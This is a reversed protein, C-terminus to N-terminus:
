LSPFVTVRDNLESSNMLINKPKSLRRSICLWHLHNMVWELAPKIQSEFTISELREWTQVCLCVAGNTSCLPTFLVPQQSIPQGGWRRAPVGSTGLPFGKLVPTRHTNCEGQRDTERGKAEKKAWTVLGLVFYYHRLAESMSCFIGLMEM